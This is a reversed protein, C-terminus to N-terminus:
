RHTSAPRARPPPSRRGPAESSGGKRGTPPSLSKRRTTSSRGSGRRGTPSGKRRTAGQSTGRIGMPSSKRRTTAGQSAGGSRRSEGATPKKKVRFSRLVERATINKPEVAVENYIEAIKGHRFEKAWWAPNHGTSDRVHPDAGHRLLLRTIEECGEMAAVHLPTLGRANHSLVNAGARLLEDTIDLLDAGVALHLPTAGGVRAIEAVNPDADHELLMQVMELSKGRCAAHLPTSNAPHFHGSAEPGHQKMKLLHEEIIQTEGKAALREYAKIAQPLRAITTLRDIVPGHAVIGLPRGPVAGQARLRSYASLTQDQLAPEPTKCKRQFPVKDLQAAFLSPLGPAPPTADAKALGKQLLMKVEEIDGREISHMLAHQAM